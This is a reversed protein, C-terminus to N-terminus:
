IIIAEGLAMVSYPPTDPLTDMAKAFLAPNGGELSLCWYHCPVTLKANVICSAEAAEQENLNGFAGNIPFIALDFQHERMQAFTDPRPCTDGAVYIKKGGFDLLLGIASPAAEGHDCPLATVTFDGGDFNAGVALSCIRKEPVNMLTHADKAAQEAALLTTVNNSMLFPISDPDLHDDHERTVIIYDFIVEDCGLVSPVIRKFSGKRGVNDSLYPDIAILKGTPTKFVFGAQGIWFVGVNGQPIPKTLIYLATNM